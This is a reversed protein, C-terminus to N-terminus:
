MFLFIKRISFIEQDNGVKVKQDRDFKSYCLKNCQNKLKYVFCTTM